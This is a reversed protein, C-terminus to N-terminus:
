CDVLGSSLAVGEFHNVGAARLLSLINKWITVWERRMHGIIFIPNYSNAWRVKVNAVREHRCCGAHCWVAV